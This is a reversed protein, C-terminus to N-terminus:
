TSGRPQVVPVPIAGPHGHRQVLTVSILGCCAVLAGVTLSLVAASDTKFMVGLWTGCLFAAAALMFGGLASAAGAKAPFSSAIGVHGCPQAIGYALLNLWLAATLTVATHTLALQPVIFCAAALLSLGGSRRVTGVIGERAIWRRCLMTGVLYAVSAGGILLGFVVKSVGFTEIYLYSSSSFFGFNAAYGASNLLTWSRFGPHRAIEVYGRFLPGMRLAQPNLTPATEPVRLLVLALTALGFLAMAVLTARWGLASALLAGAIPILMTMCALVSMAVTMVHTGQQPEYLDRVIARGCVMSAAMGLGQAARAAILIEISPALAGLVAGGAYLSFGVVLVPRRGFRDSAPGWFLQSLGFTFVLVALTLQVVSVPAGFENRIQPLATLYLDTALPQAMTLLTVVLVVLGAGM